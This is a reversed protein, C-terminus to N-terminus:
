SKQFRWRQSRRQLGETFIYFIPLFFVTNGMPLPLSVESLVAYGFLFVAPKYKRKLTLMLLCCIILIARFLTAVM